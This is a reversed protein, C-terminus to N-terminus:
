SWIIVHYIMGKSRLTLTLSSINTGRRKDSLVKHGTQKITVSLNWDCPRLNHDFQLQDENWMDHQVSLIKKGHAQCNSFKICFNGSSLLNEPWTALTLNSTEKCNEEEQNVFNRKTVTQLTLTLSLVWQYMYRSLIKNPLNFQLSLKVNINNLWM